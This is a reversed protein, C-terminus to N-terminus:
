YFSFDAEFLLMTNISSFSLANPIVSGIGGVGAPDYMGAILVPFRSNM